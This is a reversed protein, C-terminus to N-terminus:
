LSCLKEFCSMCFNCNFLMYIFNQCTNKKFNPSSGEQKEIIPEPFDIYFENTNSASSVQIEKISKNSPM